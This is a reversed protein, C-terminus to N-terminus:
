RCRRCCRRLRLAHAEARGLSSATARDSAAPLARREADLAVEAQQRERRQELVDGADVRRQERAGGAQQRRRADGAHAVGPRVHRAQEAQMECSPAACGPARARVAAVHQDDGGLAAPRHRM